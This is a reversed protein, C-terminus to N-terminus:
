SLSSFAGVFGGIWVMGLGCAIVIGARRRPPTGPTSRAFALIGGLGVLLGVVLLGFGALMGPNVRPESSGAVASIASSSPLSRM